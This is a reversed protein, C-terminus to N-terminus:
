IPQVALRAIIYKLMGLIGPNTYLKGLNDAPAPNFRGSHLQKFVATLMDESAEFLAQQVEIWSSAHSIDVQQIKVVEGGDLSDTLRQITVGASNEGNVFEWFGAPRGRYETIDGHHFSVIGHQPARLADGIVIGFGFRIGIDVSELLHIAEGTLENGLGDCNISGTYSINDEQIFPVESLPIKERFEPESVLHRHYSRYINWPYFNSLNINGHRSSRPENNILVFEISVEFNIIAKEL